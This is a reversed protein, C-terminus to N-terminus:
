ARTRATTWRVRLLPTTVKAPMRLVGGQCSQVLVSDSQEKGKREGAGYLPTHWCPSFSPEFRERKLKKQPLPVSSVSLTATHTPKQMETPLCVLPVAQVRGRPISLQSRAARGNEQHLEAKKKSYPHPFFTTSDATVGERCCSNRASLVHLIRLTPV